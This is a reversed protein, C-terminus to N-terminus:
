KNTPKSKEKTWRQQAAYKANLQRIEKRIYHKEYEMYDFFDMTDMGHFLMKLEPYPKKIWKDVYAQSYSEWYVHEGENQAIFVPKFYDLEAGYLLELSRYHKRELRNTLKGDHDTAVHAAFMLDYKKRTYPTYIARTHWYYIPLNYKLRFLLYKTQLWNSLRTGAGPIFEEHHKKSQSLPIHLKTTSNIVTDWYEKYEKHTEFGDSIKKQKKQKTKAQEDTKAAKKAV